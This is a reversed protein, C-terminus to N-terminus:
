KKSTMIIKGDEWTGIVDFKYNRYKKVLRKDNILIYNCRDLLAELIYKYSAFPISSKAIDYTAIYSAEMGLNIHITTWFRTNDKYEYETRARNLVKIFDAIQTTTLDNDITYEISMLGFGAIPM